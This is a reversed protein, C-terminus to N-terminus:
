VDKNPLSTPYILVNILNAVYVGCYYVIYWPRRDRDVSPTVSGHGYNEHGLVSSEINLM